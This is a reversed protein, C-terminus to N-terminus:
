RFEAALEMVYALGLKVFEAAHTLNWGEQTMTDLSTHATDSYPPADLVKELAFMSPYGSQNWSMHDSGCIKGCNTFAWPITNYKDVLSTAFSTLNENTNTNFFAIVPETGVPVVAAGDIQLVSIVPQNAERYASAVDISGLLGGEEAAYWHFEIALSGPVEFGKELLSRLVQMIVVSGSGDDDAGPARFFPYKYNLSDQHASLVIIERQPSPSVTTNAEIRAIITNQPFNHSIKRVSFSINSSAHKQLLQLVHDHIWDSSKLGWISKYNRTWFSTLQLLDNHLNLIVSELEEALLSFPLSESEFFGSPGHPCDFSIGPLTQRTFNPHETIDFFGINSQLLDLKDAETVLRPLDEGFVHILRKESLDFQAHPYSLNDTPGLTDFLVQSVPGCLCLPFWSLSALVRM